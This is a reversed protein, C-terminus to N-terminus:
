QYRGGGAESIRRDRDQRVRSALPAPKAGRDARWERRATAPTETMFPFDMQGPLPERAPSTAKSM